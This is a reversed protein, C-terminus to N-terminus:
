VLLGAMIAPNNALDRERLKEENNGIVRGTV